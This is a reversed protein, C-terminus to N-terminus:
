GRQWSTVASMPQPAEDRRPGADRRAGVQVWTFIANVILMMGLLIIGFALAPGFNGRSQELLMAGTLVRTEGAINGGTTVSAGVESIAAGFGAMVAALLPLRVEQLLLWLMQLRSAGLAYVQLRMKEPLAALSAATFGAVIPTVIITQAVVMAQKEYIWGLQGLPGSRWLLMAVFLGVVIPPVGMGTNVVSFAILRGPFRTFALFAGIGVGIALSVATALGSVVISRWATGYVDNSGTALMEFAETIAERILDVAVNRGSQSARM